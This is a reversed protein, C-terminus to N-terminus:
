GFLAYYVKIAGTTSIAAGTTNKVDIFSSNGATGQLNFDEIYIQGIYDTKIKIRQLVGISYSPVTSTYTGNEDYWDLRLGDSSISIHGSPISQNTTNIIVYGKYTLGGGGGGPTEAAFNGDSDVTLVKGEDTDDVEPLKAAGTLAAKVEARTMGLHGKKNYFPKLAM